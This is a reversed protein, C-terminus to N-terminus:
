PSKHGGWKEARYSIKLGPNLGDTPSMTASACMAPIQPARCGASFRRFNALAKALPALDWPSSISTSQQQSAPRTPRTHGNTSSIYSLPLDIRQGTVHWRRKAVQVGNANVM